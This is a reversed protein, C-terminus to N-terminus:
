RLCVSSQETDVSTQARSKAKRVAASTTCSGEGIVERAWIQGGGHGVVRGREFEIVAPRTSSSGHFQRRGRGSIGCATSSEMGESSM